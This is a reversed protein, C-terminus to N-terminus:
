EYKKRRKDSKGTARNTKIKERQEKDRKQRFSISCGRKIPNTLNM